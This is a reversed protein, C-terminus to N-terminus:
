QARRWAWRPHPPPPAPAPTPTALDSRQPPGMEERAPLPPQRRPLAGLTPPSAAAAESLRAGDLLAQPQSSAAPCRGGHASPHVRHHGARRARLGAAELARPRPDRVTTREQDPWRLSSSEPPGTRTPTAARVLGGSDAGHWSFAAAKRATQRKIFLAALSRQNAHKIKIVKKFFWYVVTEAGRLPYVKYDATGRYQTLNTNEPPLRAKEWVYAGKFSANTSCNTPGLLGLSLFGRANESKMKFIISNWSCSASSYNTFAM